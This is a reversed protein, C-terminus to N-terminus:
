RGVGGIGGVCACRTKGQVVRGDNREIVAKWKEAGAVRYWGRLYTHARTGEM